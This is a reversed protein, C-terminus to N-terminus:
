FSLCGQKSIKTRQFIYKKTSLLATLVVWLLSPHQPDRTQKLAALFAITQIQQQPRCCLQDTIKARSITNLELYPFFIYADTEESYVRSKVFAEWNYWKSIGPHCLAIYRDKINVRLNFREPFVPTKWFPDRTFFRGALAQSAPSEPKIEPDPLDGPSPFRLGSWYKQRSFEVSLPVQCSVTWPSAFLRICHVVLHAHPLTLEHHFSPLAMLTDIWYYKPHLSYKPLVFSVSWGM